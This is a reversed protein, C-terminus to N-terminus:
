GVNEFAEMLEQKPSKKRAGARKSFGRPKENQSIAEPKHPKLPAKDEGKDSPQIGRDKSLSPNGGNKGNKKATASKRADSTMRRSYIRRQRDRSFVGNRELEGLLSAVESELCGTLRALSTEDLGRGAVAVYGIPDHAAAICLLRMWFGQAAMSCLRLAPDTEWDSWYFKTWVTGSM